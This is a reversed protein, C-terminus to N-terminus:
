DYTNWVASTECLLNSSIKLATNCFKNEKLYIKMKLSPYHTMCSDITKLRTLLIWHTKRFSKEHMRWTMDFVQAAHGGTSKTTKKEVSQNSMQKLYRWRDWLERVAIFGLVNPVSGVNNAMSTDCLLNADTDRPLKALSCLQRSISKRCLKISLM